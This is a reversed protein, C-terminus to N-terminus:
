KATHPDVFKFKQAMQVIKMFGPHINHWQFGGLMIYLNGLIILLLMAYANM